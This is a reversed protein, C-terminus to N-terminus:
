TVFQMVTLMPSVAGSFRYITGDGFLRNRLRLIVGGRGVGRSVRRGGQTETCGLGLAAGDSM